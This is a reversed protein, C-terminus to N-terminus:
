EGLGYYDYFTPETTTTTTTTTITTSATQGSEFSEVMALLNSMSEICSKIAEKLSTHFASLSEENVNTPTATTTTACILAVLVLFTKM